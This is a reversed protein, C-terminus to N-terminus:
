EEITIYALAPSVRQVAPLRYTKGAEGTETVTFGMREYFDEVQRNKRTPLYEGHWETVGWSSELLELCRHLFVTELNRGLVRCSLLLSDIRGVRGERVAILVGTLGSDGFKDTVTLSFVGHDDRTLFRAIEGEAYRRTTLNFQNTKQTLQAVRAVEGPAAPHIVATLELSALYQELNEYQCSAEKRRAEAQYMRARQRDESSVALTDFLGSGLLLRPYLYLKDPVRLVTVEPLATAVLECETPNDDVFVFSDLGLNLEAALDRINSVKDQWNVRWASLHERKLLAQPHSGLVEWVDEDNNKSCLTILIGREHLALVSRQFDYFVNGPYSNRDLAIGQLGEEGIVGGWLTNDCDLVLCKKAKGKLAKAVQAIEWAYSNLFQKKFPAKAMYWFRYDMSGEEGYLRVLREWDALLFRSHHAAVYARVAGNIRAIEATADSTWDHGTVGFESAFPPIFTNVMVLASTRQALLDFLSELEGIARDGQWGPSRYGPDLQEMVLSLVVIDAPNRHLPSGDDMIEQLVMDYNGFVIGPRIGATLCHYKLFPEIGEVTVNRLFCVQVTSDCSAKEMGAVAALLEALPLVAARSHSSESVTM